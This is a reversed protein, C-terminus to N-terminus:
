FLVLILWAHVSLNNADIIQHFVSTEPGLLFMGWMNKRMVQGKFLTQGELPHITEDFM